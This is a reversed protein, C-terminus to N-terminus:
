ICKCQRFAKLLKPMQMAFFDVMEENVAWHEADLSNYSLGAEFIFAHIIEHRLTADRYQKQRIKPEDKWGTEDTSLDMLLIKKSFLICRGAYGDLEPDDANRVEITYRTGLIDVEM